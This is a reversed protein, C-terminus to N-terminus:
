THFQSKVSRLFPMTFLIHFVNFSQSGSVQLLGHLLAAATLALGGALGCALGGAGHAVLATLLDFLGINELSSYAAIGTAAVKKALLSGRAVLLVYHCRPRKRVAPGNHTTPPMRRVGCLRAIALTRPPGGTFVPKIAGRASACLM